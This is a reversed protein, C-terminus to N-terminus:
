VRVFGAGILAPANDDPVLVYGDQVLFQRGILTYVRTIGPRAKLQVRPPEVRGTAIDALQRTYELIGWGRTKAEDLRTSTVDVQDDYLGNPSV